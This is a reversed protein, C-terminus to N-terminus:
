RVLARSFCGPACAHEPSPQCRRLLLREYYEGETVRRFVWTYGTPQSAFPWGGGIVHPNIAVRLEEGDLRWHLTAAQHLATHRGPHACSYFESLRVAEDAISGHYQFDSSTFVNVVFHFSGTPGFALTRVGHHTCLYNDPCGPWGDPGVRASLDEDAISQQVGDPSEVRSWVWYGSLELPDAGRKDDVVLYRGGRRARVAGGIAVFAVCLAVFAPFLAQRM